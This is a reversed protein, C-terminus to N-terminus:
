AAHFKLILKSVRFCGGFAWPEATPRRGFCTKLASLPSRCLRLITDPAQGSGKRAIILASNRANYKAVYEDLNGSWNANAM